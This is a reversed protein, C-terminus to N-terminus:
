KQQSVKRRSVPARVAKSKKGERLKKAVAAEEAESVEFIDEFRVTNPDTKSLAM